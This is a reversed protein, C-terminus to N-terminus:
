TLCRLAGKIQWYVWRAKEDNTSFGDAYTAHVALFIDIVDNRTAELRKRSQSGHAIWWLLYVVIGVSLRYPFSSARYESYRQWPTDIMESIVEWIQDAAGFISDFMDSTYRGGARCIRIQAASFMQEQMEPLAALVDLAGELMGENEAAAADWQAILQAQISPSGIEQPSIALMMQRLSEAGELLEMAEVLDPVRPDIRMIEETSRLAIVQDPYQGLVALGKMLATSCRQKYLEFWVESTIVAFNRPNFALYQNLEETQLMNSDIVLRRGM